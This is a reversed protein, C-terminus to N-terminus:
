SLTVLQEYESVYQGFNEKADENLCTKNQWQDNTFTGDIFNIKMKVEQASSNSVTYCIGTQVGPDITYKLVNGTTDCYDLSISKLNDAHTPVIALLSFSFM